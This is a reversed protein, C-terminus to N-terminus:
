DKSISKEKKYKKGITIIEKTAEYGDKLPMNLDMLILQYKIQCCTKNLNQTFM